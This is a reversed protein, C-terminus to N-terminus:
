VCGLARFCDDVTDYVPVENLRNLQEKSRYGWTVLMAQVSANQASQFDVETDGVYVAEKANVHLKELTMEIMTPHPKKPIGEVAGCIVDFCNPFHTQILSQAYHDAKNTVVACKIGKQKLHHLYELIGEYPHTELNYCQAYHQHFLELAQPLLTPNLHKMERKVLAEIGNGMAAQVDELSSIPQHFHVQVRHLATQLDLSTDLLTGDLDFLVAKLTM